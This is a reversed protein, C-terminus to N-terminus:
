NLKQLPLIPETAASSSERGRRTAVQSSPEEEYRSPGRLRSAFVRGTVPNSRVDGKGASCERSRPHCYAEQTSDFSFFTVLPWPLPAHLRVQLIFCLCLYARSASRLCSQPHSSPLVAIASLFVCACLAPATSPRLSPNTQSQGRGRVAKLGWFM